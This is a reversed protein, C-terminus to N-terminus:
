KYCYEKEGTTVQNDGCISCILRTPSSEIFKVVYDRSGCRICYLPVKKLDGKKGKVKM